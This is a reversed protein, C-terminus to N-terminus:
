EAADDADDVPDPAVTPEPPKAGREGLEAGEILPVGFKEAFAILDVPTGSEIIGTLGQYASQMTVAQAQLDQPIVLRWRPWPLSKVDMAPRNFAAYYAIISCRLAASLSTADGRVVSQKVRMHWGTAAYSGGGVDTSLNQGLIRISIAKALMENFNDFAEFTKSKAELFDVDYSESDTDGRPLRMSGATGMAQLSAYFADKQASDQTATPEYVRLIPMGHRETYRAFDRFDWQRMLYKDGLSRVAGRMWSREGGPAVVLWNPDGPSIDVQGRDLTSAVFVRRSDSWKVASAHFHTLKVPRLEGDVNDWTVWSFSIGLHILDFITVRLWTDTIVTHWWEDLDVALSASEAMNVDSAELEFPASDDGTLASIRDETCAAIREDRTYHDALKASQSFDGREHADIAALISSITWRTQTRVTSSRIVEYQHKNERAVEAM